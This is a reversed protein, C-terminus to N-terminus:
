DNSDAIQASLSTISGAGMFLAVDDPSFVARLDSVDVPTEEILVTDVGARRLPEAILESSVDPIVQERSAYVPLLIVKDAIALSEAFELAFDRTRSYLHPQFVAILRREPWCQRAAELTVRVETPHHAYDDFVLAGNCTGKREFRRHVGEFSELATRIASISVGAEIAIVTAATANLVNHQGPVAIRLDVQEGEPTRLSFTCTMGSYSESVIRFDAEAARGYTITPRKIRPLIDRTHHDDLCAVVLGYFPVKNAFEVFADKISELDLYTDLHEAEVTTIVALTPSLKLFSRDFEDAEAVLYTGRGTAAGTGLARVKGGVIITPDLNANSLIAGIMSTTTTKGHTGSVAIGSKLRMLEALMESRPITPIRNERAYRVEPNEPRVASSFVVVDSHEANVASHEYSIRIGFSELRDTADSHSLDSGSVEFGMACLVEAIGCMGAGGIGVM